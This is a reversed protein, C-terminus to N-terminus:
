EVTKCQIVLNIYSYTSTDKEWITWSMDGDVYDDEEYDLNQFQQKVEVMQAKFETEAMSLHEYVGVVETDFEENVDETTKVLVFVQM